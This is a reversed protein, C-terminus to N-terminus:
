APTTRSTSCAWAALAGNTRTASRNATPNTGSVSAHGAGGPPRAPSGTRATATSTTAVGHGSSSAAGTAIMDPNDRAARRPTTTLPPRRQFAEGGAPRHQEVLGSRQGLTPRGQGVHDGGVAIRAPRPTARRAAESSWLIRAHAPRRWRSRRGPARVQGSVAGCILDVLARTRCPPVTSPRRTRRPLAEQTTPPRCRGGGHARRARRRASSSPESVTNTLMSSAGAPTSSSSSGIRGLRGPHHARQPWAPILRTPRIVPSRASERLRDPPDDADVRDVGVAIRGVLEARTRSSCLRAGVIM